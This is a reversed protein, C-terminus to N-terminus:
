ERKERLARLELVVQRDKPRGMAEKAAILSDINLIRCPYGFLTIKSSNKKTEEFDGIEMITGLLDLEGWDTKVYLNNLQALREVSYEQLPIIKSGARVRPHINTLAKLLNEVNRADFSFCVDVDQTVTSVGHAIAALGGVLVFEVKNQLLLKLIENLEPM